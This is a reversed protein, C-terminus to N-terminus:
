AANLPLCEPVFVWNKFIHPFMNPFYGLFMASGFKMVTLHANPKVKTTKADPEKTLKSSCYKREKDRMGTFCRLVVFTLSITELTSYGDM